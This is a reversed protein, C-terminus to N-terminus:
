LGLNNLAFDWNFYDFVIDLFAERDNLFDVYYAHEWIDCVLVPKKNLVLPNKANSSSYVKLKEDYIIWVWGCGFHRLGCQIFEEKFLDMTEFSEKILKLVVENPEKKEPDLSNWFFTHNWHQSANNFVKKFFDDNKRQLFSQLIIDELGGVIERELLLNNLNKVYASHHKEYHIQFSKESLKEFANTQFPLEKLTFM